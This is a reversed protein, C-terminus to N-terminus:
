NTLVFLAVLNPIVHLTYLSGDTEYPWIKIKRSMCQADSRNYIREYLDRYHVENSLEEGSARWYKGM